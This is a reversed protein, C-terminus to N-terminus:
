PVLFAPNCALAMALMIRQQQGGSVQHPYRQAMQGPLPLQLRELLEVVRKRALSKSGMGHVMLCEAIQDGLRMVPNLAAASSQAVYAVQRGRVQRRDDFNLSLLDRGSINVGGKIARTGPRLYGLLSLALTTKGEGSGGILAVVEGPPWM